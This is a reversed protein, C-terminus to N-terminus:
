AKGESGELHVGGCDPGVKKKKLLQTQSIISLPRYIARQLPPICIPTSLCPSCAAHAHQRESRTTTTTTTPSLPAKSAQNYHTTHTGAVDSRGSGNRFLPCGPPLSLSLSLVPASALGATTALWGALWETLCTMRKPLPTLVLCPNKGRRYVMALEELDEGGQLWISSTSRDM